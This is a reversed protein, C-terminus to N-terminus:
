KAVDDSGNLLALDADADDDGEDIIRQVVLKKEEDSIQTLERAFATATDADMNPTLTYGDDVLQSIADDKGTKSSLDIDGPSIHPIYRNEDVDLYMRNLNKENELAEIPDIGDLFKNWDFDIGGVSDWLDGEYAPYSKIFEKYKNHLEELRAPDIPELGLNACVKQITNSEVLMEECTTIADWNEMDKKYEVNVVDILEWKADDFTTSEVFANYTLYLRQRGNKHPEGKIFLSKVKVTPHLATIADGIDEYHHSKAFTKPVVIVTKIAGGPHDACDVLAKAIKDFQNVIQTIDGTATASEWIEDVNEIIDIEDALIQYKYQPDSQDNGKNRLTQGHLDRELDPYTGNPGDVLQVFQMPPLVAPLCDPSQSLLWTVPMTNVGPHTPCIIINQEM